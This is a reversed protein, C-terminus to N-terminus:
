VQAEQYVKLRQGVHIVSNTLDNLEKLLDVYDETNMTAPRYMNAINWLCDGKKVVYSSEVFDYNPKKVASIVVAFTLVVILLVCIIEIITKIKM